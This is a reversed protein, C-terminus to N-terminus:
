KVEQVYWNLLKTPEPAVADLKDSADTFADSEDFAHVETVVSYPAVATNFPDSAYWGVCRYTKKSM